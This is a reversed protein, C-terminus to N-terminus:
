HSLTASTCLKLQWSPWRPIVTTNNMCCHCLSRQWPNLLASGRIVQDREGLGPPRSGRSALNLVWQERSGARGGRLPGQPGWAVSTGKKCHDGGMGCRPVGRNVCSDWCDRDWTCVLRSRLCTLGPSQPRRRCQNLAFSPGVDGLWELLALCCPFRSAGPGLTPFCTM